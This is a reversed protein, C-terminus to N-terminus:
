ESIESVVLLSVIRLTEHRRIQKMLGNNLLCCETAMEGSDIKYEAAMSDTHVKYETAMNDSDVKCEVVMNDTHVRCEVVM